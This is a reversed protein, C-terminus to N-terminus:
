YDIVNDEMTSNDLSSFDYDEYSDYDDYDESYYDDSWEESDVSSAFLAGASVSMVISFVIGLLFSVLACIGCAKATKPKDNKKVLFLILGVIPFLFSLIALGVNAKQEQPQQPPVNCQFQNYGNQQQYNQNNFEDAM